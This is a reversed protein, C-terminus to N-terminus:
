QLTIDFYCGCPLGPTYNRPFGLAYNYLLPPLRDHYKNESDHGCKKKGEHKTCQYTEELGHHSYRRVLFRILIEAHVVYLFKM